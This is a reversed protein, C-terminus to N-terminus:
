SNQKLQHQLVYQNWKKDMKNKIVDTLIDPLAIEIVEFHVNNV